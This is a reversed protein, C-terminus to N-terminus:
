QKPKLLFAVVALALLCLWIGTRLSAPRYAFIVQHKGPPLEVGRFLYNAQYIPAAAGDVSAEWGPYYLDSLVLWGGEPADAGIRVMEPAYLEIHAAIPDKRGTRNRPATLPRGQLNIVAAKASAFGPTSIMELAEAESHVFEPQASVFARPLVGRNEWVAADSEHVLRYGAAAPAAAGKPGIVYRVGLVSLLEPNGIRTVDYSWYDIKSLASLIEPDTSEIYRQLSRFFLTGPTWKGPPPAGSRLRALLDHVAPDIRGIVEYIRFPTHGDIGRVDQLNYLISTEPPVWGALGLFRSEGCSQQLFEVSSSRPLERGAPSSPYYYISLRFLDGATFALLLWAAAVPRLRRTRWLWIVVTAALLLGLQALAEGTLFRSLQLERIAERFFVTAGAALSVFCVAAGHWVLVPRGRREVPCRLMLDLGAVALSIAGFVTLATLKNNDLHSLFPVHKLLEQAPGAYLGLFGFAAVSVVGWYFRDKKAGLLGIAALLLPAIGIYVAEGLFSSFGWFNGARPDGFFRPLAWSVLTYWPYQKWGFGGRFHAAAGERLYELFPLLQPAALCFGLAAAVALAPYLKVSRAGAAFYLASALSLLLATQLGGGLFLLGYGVAMWAVYRRRGSLLYNQMAWFLFPMTLLTFSAPYGLWVVTVAGFMFAVAGLLCAQRDCDLRRYFLFAFIGCFSLKAVAIAILAAGLPLVRYIWSLPYLLGTQGNALLPSGCFSYPNWLPLLSGSRRFEEIWPYIMVALDWLLPNHVPSLEKPASASFPALNHFVDMPLMLGGRLINPAFFVIALAVIILLYRANTM